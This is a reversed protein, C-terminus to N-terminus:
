KSLLFYSTEEIAPIVIIDLHVGLCECLRQCTDAQEDFFETPDSHSVVSDYFSLCSTLITSTIVCSAAVTGPM